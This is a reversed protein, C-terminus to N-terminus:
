LFKKFLTNSYTATQETGNAFKVVKVQGGCFDLDSLLLLLPHRSKSIQVCYEPLFTCKNITDSVNNCDLLALKLNQVKSKSLNAKSKIQYNSIYKLHANKLSDSTYGGELHYIVYQNNGLITKLEESTFFCKQTKSNVQGISLLPLLSLLLLAYYLKFTNNCKLM